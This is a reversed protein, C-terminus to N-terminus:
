LYSNIWSELRPRYAEKAHHLLRALEKKLQARCQSVTARTNRFIEGNRTIWISWTMLIIIEMFFPVRLQLKLSELYAYPQQLNPMQIGISAWCETAFICTSFLHKIDEEVGLDCMDCSYSPLHM